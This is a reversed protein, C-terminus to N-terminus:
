QNDLIWQILDPKEIDDTIDLGMALAIKKLEKMPKATLKAKSWRPKANAAKHETPAEKSPGSDAPLKDAPTKTADWDLVRDVPREPAKAPQEAATHEMAGTHLEVKVEASQTALINKDDDMLDTLSAYGSDKGPPPRMPGSGMINGDAGVEVEIGVNAGSQGDDVTIKDDDHKNRGWLVDSLNEPKPIDTVPTMGTTIDLAAERSEEIGGAVLGKGLLDAEIHSLGPMGAPGGKAMAEINVPSAPPPPTAYNAPSYNAPNLTIQPPPPQAPQPPEAELPGTPLDTLITISVRGVDVDHQMQRRAGPDRENLTWADGEIFMSQGAAIYVGNRPIWGYQQLKDTPNTLRTKVLM